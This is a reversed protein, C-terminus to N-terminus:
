RTMLPHLGGGLSSAHSQMAERFGKALFHEEVAITRMSATGSTPPELAGLIYLLSSKGAGSPGMIAAGDGPALSFSVDALVPVAGRPTPYEKTLNTVQLM